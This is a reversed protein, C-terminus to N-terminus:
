ISRFRGEDKTRSWLQEVEEKGGGHRRRIVLILDFHHGKGGLAEGWLAQRGPTDLRLDFRLEM